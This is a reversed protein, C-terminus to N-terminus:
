GDGGRQVVQPTLSVDQTPCSFVNPKCQCTGNFLSPNFSPVYFSTAPNCLKTLDVAFSSCSFLGFKGFPFVNTYSGFPSM